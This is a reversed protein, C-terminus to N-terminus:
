ATPERGTLLKTARYCTFEGPEDTGYYSACACDESCTTTRRVTAFLGHRVAADQLDGGDIVGVEPFGDLAWQAFARLKDREATVRAADKALQEALATINPHM